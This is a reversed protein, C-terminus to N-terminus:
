KAEIPKGGNDIKRINGTQDMWFSLKGSHGYRAPEASATYSKGDRAVTVHFRYGTSETGKLDQPMLGASILAPLDAFSGGHQSSYLAEVALLRTLLDKVQDQHTDIRAGLFFRKGAKKVAAQSEEDGVIWGDGAQILTAPEITVKEPDDNPIRIMVTAVNGNIQEGTVEIKVQIGAAMRDFDSQLDEFEQQSLGDVASRYISIAFAERYRRERMLKYFTIVTETPTRPTQAGAAPVAVALSIALAILSLSGTIVFRTRLM